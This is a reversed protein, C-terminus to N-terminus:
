HIELKRVEKALQNMREFLEKENQEEQSINTRLRDKVSANGTAYQERLQQLRIATEQYSREVQQYRGFAERSQASRFDSLRHYTNSDNIVFTFEQREGKDSDNDDVAALRRLADRVETQDKWTEKIAHIRALKALLEKDTNEFSYV